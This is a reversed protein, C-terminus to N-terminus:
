IHPTDQAVKISHEFHGHSHNVRRLIQRIAAMEAHCTCSDGVIGDRTHCRYHNFGRGLIKGGSVAVAGHKMNCPSNQAEVLAAQIFHEDQQSISNMQESISNTTSNSTPTNM